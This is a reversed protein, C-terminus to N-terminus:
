MPGHLQFTLSSEHINCLISNGCTQHVNLVEQPDEKKKLESSTENRTGVVLQLSILRQRHSYLMLSTKHAQM